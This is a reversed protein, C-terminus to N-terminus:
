KNEEKEASASGEANNDKQEEQAKTKAPAEISKEDTKAEPAQEEKKAAAAEAPKQKPQEQKPQEKATPAPAAAKSGASFKLGAFRENFKAVRGAKENLQAGGGVWAPHTNPDVDLHLTDGAKGYTSRTKFTKGNTMKVTIEHYDPHIDPKM